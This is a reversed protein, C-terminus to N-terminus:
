PREDVGTKGIAGILDKGGEPLHAALRGINAMDDNRVGMGIMDATQRRELSCCVSRRIDMWGIRRNRAGAGAKTGEGRRRPKHRAQQKPKENTGGSWNFSRDDIVLDVLTIDEGDGTPQGGQMRRSMTGTM